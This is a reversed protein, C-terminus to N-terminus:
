RRLHTAKPDYYGGLRVFIALLHKAQKETPERLLTKGAMDNIFTREWEDRLRRENKQLFLAIENWRPCGDADYFEPPAQQKQAEAVRGKEVGRAFIVEADADSYKREEIEGNCSEIVTAIDNFSLGETQLTHKMMTLANDVEGKFPSGLMRFLKAIRKAVSENLTSMAMAGTRTRNARATADVSLGQRPGQRLWAQVPVGM